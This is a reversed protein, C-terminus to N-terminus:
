KSANRVVLIRSATDVFEKAGPRVADKGAHFDYLTASDPKDNRAESTWVRTCTIHILETLHVDDAAVGLEDVAAACYSRRSKAKDFLGALEAETPLRWDTYDGGKYNTAFTKADPWSMPAGNDRSAWMLNTSTDLVTQNDYATFHGDKGAEKPPGKPAPPPPVPKEPLDKGGDKALLDQIDKHNWTIASHVPSWGESDVANVDAKNAVLLEVIDQNGKAAALHLPTSGNKAKANVDAKNALLFEAVDKHDSFAAIHLPTQGYQDDKSSVLSPNAKVLAQVKALDGARAADHIPGCFAPSAALLVALGMLFGTYGRLLHTRFLHKQSANM